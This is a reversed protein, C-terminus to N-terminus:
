QRSSPKFTVQPSVAQVAPDGGPGISPFLYRFFKGKGKVVVVLDVVKAPVSKGDEQPRLIPPQTPM